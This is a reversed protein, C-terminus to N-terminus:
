QQPKVTEPLDYRNVPAEGIVETVGLDVQWALAALSADWNESIEVAIGM